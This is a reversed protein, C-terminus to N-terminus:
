AGANETEANLILAVAKDAKGAASVFMMPDNKIHTAWGQVYAASNRFTNGNELGITALITASTIEAVLEEKSYSESGFAANKAEGAFRNLRSAHGTSHGLEHFLTSYYEASDKFQYINPVSVLDRSPSYYARNTDDKNQLTLTQARSIYDAIIAEAEASFNATVGEAPKIVYNPIKIVRPEPKFKPKIGECDDVHFVNYHKLVPIIKVIKDGDADLEDTEKRVMNWYVIPVSKAGKKVSGGEAKCQKFTIYEGPRGDFFNILLPNIGTYPKGSRSWFDPNITIETYGDLVRVTRGSVKWPKTWPLKGGNKMTELMRDVIKQAVDKNNM